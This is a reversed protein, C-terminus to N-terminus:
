VQAGFDFARALVTARYLAANSQDKSFLLDLFAKLGGRFISVTQFPSLNFTLYKESNYIAKSQFLRASQSRLELQGCDGLLSLRDLESAM